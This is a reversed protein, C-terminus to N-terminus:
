NSEDDDDEVKEVFVRRSPKRKRAREDFPTEELLKVMDVNREIVPPKTASQKGGVVVKRGGGPPMKLKDALMKAFNGGMMKNPGGGGFPRTSGMAPKERKEREKRERERKEREEKEKRERERKEREKREREEKEKREREEREEREKREREEQEIREREEQEIREREEQEIREREEQEIREREEQEKKEREIREMEEKQQWNNALDEDDELEKEENELKEQREREEREKEKKAKKEEKIVEKYKKKFRNVANKMKKAKPDSGGVIYDDDDDENEEEGNKGEPGKPKNKANQEEVQYRIDNSPAKKLEDKYKKIREKMEKINKQDNNENMQMQAVKKKINKNQKMSQAQEMLSKNEKELNQYSEKQLDYALQLQKMEKELQTIQQDQKKILNKFEENKSTLTAIQRDKERDKDKDRNKDIEKSYEKERLENQLEKVINRYYDVDNQLKLLQDLFILQIIEGKIKIDNDKLTTNAKDINDDLQIEYIKKGKNRRILVFGTFKAIKVPTSSNYKEILVELFKNRKRNIKKRYKTSVVPEEEGDIVFLDITRENVLNIAKQSSPAYSPKEYKKIYDNNYKDDSEKISNSNNNASSNIKQNKKNSYIKKDEINYHIDDTREMSVVFKDNSQKNAVDMKKQKEREKKEREKEKNKEESNKQADPVKKIIAPKYFPLHPFDDKEIEDDEENSDDDNNKKINTIDNNKDDKFKSVLKEQKQNKKPINSELNKASKTLNNEQINKKYNDNMLKFNFFDYEIDKQGEFDNDETLKNLNNEYEKGKNNKTSHNNTLNDKRQKNLIRIKPNKDPKVEKVSHVSSVGYMKKKDVSKNLVLKQKSQPQKKINNYMSPKNNKKHEISSSKKIKKKM